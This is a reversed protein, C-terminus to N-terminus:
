AKHLLGLYLMALITKGDAIKGQRILRIIKDYPLPALTITEDEEPCAKKLVLGRAAFLHIMESTYGPAPHFSILREIKQAAYGTEELLERKVCTRLQEGKELTGAPIEYLEKEVAKRYQKELLIRGDDLIPIIAVAGPHKIVERCSQRGNPLRVRLRYIDFLRGKLIHETSLTKETM